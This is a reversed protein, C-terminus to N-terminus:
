VLHRLEDGRVLVQAGPTLPHPQDRPRNRGRRHDLADLHALLANNSVKGPGAIIKLRVAKPQALGNM